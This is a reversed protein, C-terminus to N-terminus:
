DYVGRVFWKELLGDYSFRYFLSHSLAKQGDNRPAFLRPIERERPNDHLLTEESQRGACAPEFHRTRPNTKCGSFGHAAPSETTFVIELDWADEQWPKDEWWHGSTRWPGSAQIVKGSRGRFFVSAPTNGQLQVRAPVPPRFVHFAIAPSESNHLNMISSINSTNRSDPSTAAVVSFKQVQFADPRHSDLLQPSGINGEGAVAAIRAVTLELKDPDPATPIFLSGQTVRALSSQASMQIKQIPAGPPQSQLRLRLLKLLLKADRTPLPLELNCYFTRPSPKVRLLDRSTDFANDFAPQLEFNVHIAAISLARASIRASLQDLLRGLLFSLSELDDVAEDLEFCEEFHQAPEALLLPRMGKGSAIAHLRVGEQGVCESLSLVPLSALAKCTAVGWRGFTDFLEQSPSLMSVPLTELFRREEGEPVITPGPLARAVIRATEVNASVAVHVNVGFASARSVIERAIVGENGFLSALGSIDLLLTDPAADEVRPTISWAMDLLAAHAAGERIRCRSRTTVQAFQSVAAKTMGRAVGLLEALRNLAVVQYTPPPGDIIALPQTRLEPESRGIAQLIFHPVYVAGFLVALPM